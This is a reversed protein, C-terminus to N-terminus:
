QPRDVCRFGNWVSLTEGFSGANDQIFSFCAIKYSHMYNNPSACAVTVLAASSSLIPIGFFSQACKTNCVLGSMCYFTLSSSKYTDCYQVLKESHEVNGFANARSGSIFM